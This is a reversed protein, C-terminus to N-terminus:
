WMSRTGLARMSEKDRKSQVFFISSILKSFFYKSKKVLWCSGFQSEGDQDFFNVSTIFNQDYYMKAYRAFVDNAKKEMELLFPSPVIPEEEGEEVVIEPFYNNTWPSRYSDGDKNYECKLFEKGEIEDM